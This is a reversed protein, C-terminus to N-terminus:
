AVEGLKALTAMGEAIQKRACYISWQRDSEKKFEASHGFRLSNDMYELTAKLVPAEFDYACKLADEVNAMCKYKAVCEVIQKISVESM